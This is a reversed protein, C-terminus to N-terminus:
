LRRCRTSSVGSYMRLVTVAQDSATGTGFAHMVMMTKGFRRPMFFDGSDHVRRAMWIGLVTIGFLYSVLVFLDIPHLGTM